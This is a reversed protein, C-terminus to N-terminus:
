EQIIVEDGFVVADKDSWFPPVVTDIEAESGAKRWQDRLSRAEDPDRHTVIVAADSERDVRVSVHVIEAPRDTGIFYDAEPLQRLDDLEVIQELGDRLSRVVVSDSGAKAVIVVDDVNEGSELLYIRHPAIGRAEMLFMLRRNEEVLDLYAQADRLNTTRFVIDGAENVIRCHRAGKVITLDTLRTGSTYEAIELSQDEENTKTM